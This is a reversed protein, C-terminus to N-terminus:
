LLAHLCVYVGGGGFVCVCARVRVCVGVRVCHRLHCLFVSNRVQWRQKIEFYAKDKYLMNMKLRFARRELKSGVEAAKTM